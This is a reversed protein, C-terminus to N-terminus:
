PACTIVMEDSYSGIEQDSLVYKARHQRVEPKGAVLLPRNDLYPSATDRALFVFGSEGDRMSYLNIGDSKSKNFAIEVVGGDMSRGKLTPQASSLDTTDEPGEIGLTEGLATDYGPAAKMRRAYARVHGVATKVTADKAATTNRAAAMATFHGTISAHLNENDTTIATIDAPTLGFETAHATAGALFNDHWVLLDNDRYPIYDNRPM